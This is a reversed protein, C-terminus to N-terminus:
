LPASPSRLPRNRADNSVDRLIQMGAPHAATRSGGSSSQANVQDATGGTRSMRAHQRASERDAVMMAVLTSVGVSLHIM